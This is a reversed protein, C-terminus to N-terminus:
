CDGVDGRRAPPSAYSPLSPPWPGEHIHRRAPERVARARPCVSPTGGPDRLYNADRLVHKTKKFAVADYTMDIASKSDLRLATPGVPLVSFDHLVERVFTAERAAMSAAVYESEASSHSISRQLRTYWAIACGFWM